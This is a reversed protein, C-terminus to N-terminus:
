YESRSFANIDLRQLVPYCFIACSERFTAFVLKDYCYERYKASM